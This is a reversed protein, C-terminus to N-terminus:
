IGSLILDSLITKKTSLLLNRNLPLYIRGRFFRFPISKKELCARKKLSERINENLIQRTENTKTVVFVSQGQKATEIYDKVAAKILEDKDKIETIKGQSELLERAKEFNKQSMATTLERYTEVKQRNIESIRATTSKSYTQLDQFFRGAEVSQLQSIDGVFVARAGSQEVVKLLENSVRSSLMSSEDVIFVTKETVLDRPNFINKTETLKGGEFSLFTIDGSKTNKVYFEVKGEKFVSLAQHNEFTYARVKEHESQFTKELLNMFASALTETKGGIVNLKQVDGAFLNKHQEFFQNFGEYTKQMYEKQASPVFFNGFKQSLNEKKLLFSHVTDAAGVAKALEEAAKGTPALGVVHYGKEQMSKAVLEM